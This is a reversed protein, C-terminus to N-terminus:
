DRQRMLLGTGLALLGDTAMLLGRSTLAVATAESTTLVGALLVVLVAERVGAGAPLVVLLPGISFAVAFGGIAVPLTEWPDADLGVALLWVHLGFVLWFLLTWAVGRAMDKGAFPEDLPPRRLLRLGRNLLQNLVRPVLLALLVPLALLGWLVGRGEAEVLAPLAAVGVLLGVLVSLGLTLLFALATRQKPIGNEKGLRMQVVVPWVSGPVYKGLQAVFFMRAAPQVALPSGLARLTGRWLLFSMWVALLCLGLAGLLVWPSQDRLADVVDSWQGALAWGFAVVVLLLLLGSVLARRWSTRRPSDGDVVPGDSAAPTAADM